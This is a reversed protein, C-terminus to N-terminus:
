RLRPPLTSVACCSASSAILRLVPHAPRASPHAIARPTTSPRTGAAADAAVSMRPVQATWTLRPPTVFLVCYQLIAPSAAAPPKVPSVPVVGVAPVNPVSVAVSEPTLKWIVFGYVPPPYVAVKTPVRDPVDDIDPVQVLLEACDPVQVPVRVVGAAGPAGPEPGGAAPPVRGLAILMRQLRPGWGVDGECHMADTASAPGAGGFTGVPVTVQVARSPATDDGVQVSWAVLGDDGVTAVQSTV